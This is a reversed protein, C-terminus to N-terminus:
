SVTHLAALYANGPLAKRELEEGLHSPLKEIPLFPTLNGALHNPLTAIQSGSDVAFARALGGIL